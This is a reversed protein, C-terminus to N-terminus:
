KQVQELKQLIHQLSENSQLMPNTTTPTDTPTTISDNMVMQEVLIIINILSIYYNVNSEKQKKM